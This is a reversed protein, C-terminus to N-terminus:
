SLLRTRHLSDRERGVYMAVSFFLLPCDRDRCTALSRFHWTSADGNTNATDFKSKRERSNVFTLLFKRSRRPIFSIRAASSFFRSFNVSARFLRPRLNVNVAKQRDIKKGRKGRAASFSCSIFSSGSALSEAPLRIFNVALHKAGRERLPKRKSIVLLGRGTFASNLWRHTTASSPFRVRTENGSELVSTPLLLRIRSRPEELRM